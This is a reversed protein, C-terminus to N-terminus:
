VTFDTPSGSPVFNSVKTSLTMAPLTSTIPSGPETPKAMLM